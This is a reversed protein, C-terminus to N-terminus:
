YFGFSEIFDLLFSFFVDIEPSNIEPKSIGKTSNFKNVEKYIHIYMSFLDIAMYVFVCMYVCVYECACKTCM